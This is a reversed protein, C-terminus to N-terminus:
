VIGGFVEITEATLDVKFTRVTESDEAVSVAVQLPNTFEDHRMELTVDGTPPWEPFYLDFRGNSNSEARIRPTSSTVEVNVDAIRNNATDKVFGRLVTADTRFLRVTMTPNSPRYIEVAVFETLDERETVFVERTVDRFEDDSEVTVVTPNPPEPLEVDLFLFETASKPRPSTEDNEIGIRTSTKPPAGTAGDILHVALTVTLPPLRVPIKQAEYDDIGSKSTKVMLSSRDDTKEVHGGHTRYEAISEHGVEFM